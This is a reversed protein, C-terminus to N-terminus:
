EKEGFMRQQGSNCLLYQAVQIKPRFHCIDQMKITYSVNEESPFRRTPLRILLPRTTYIGVALVLFLVYIVALPM